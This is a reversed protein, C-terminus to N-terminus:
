VPTNICWSLGKFPLWSAIMLLTCNPLTPACSSLRRLYPCNCMLMDLRAAAPSKKNVPLAPPKRILPSYRFGNGYIMAICPDPLRRLQGPRACGGMSLWAACGGASRALGRRISVSVRTFGRGVPWISLLLRASSPCPGYLAHVGRQYVTSM